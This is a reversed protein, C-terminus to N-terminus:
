QSNDLQVQYVLSITGGEGSLTLNLTAIGKSQVDAFATSLSCATVSNAMLAISSATSLPAAAPDTPQSATSYASGSKYGAYRKLTQANTSTDCIYSVPVAADQIVFVRQRSSGSPFTQAASLTVHHRNSKNAGSAASGCVTPNSGSGPAISLTLTTTSPTLVASTTTATYVESGTNNVVLRYASTASGLTAVFTANKFCGLIDFESDASGISLQAAPGTCDAVGSSCYRGGDATPILELAFGSSTNTIRLSNPLAIRIDRGMRRLASEATDVLATRQAQGAYIKMAPYILGGLATAIIAILAIAVTAELLTVGRARPRRM